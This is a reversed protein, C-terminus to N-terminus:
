ANRFIHKIQSDNPPLKNTLNNVTQNYNNQELTGQPSGDTGHGLGSTKYKGM